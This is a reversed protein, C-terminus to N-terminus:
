IKIKELFHILLKKVKIIYDGCAEAKKCDMKRSHAAPNRYLESITWLDDVLSLIYKNIEQMRLDGKFDNDGFSFDLYDLMTRDIENRGKEKGVTLHVSGLTFKDTKSADEYAYETSNVRKLISRKVNQLSINNAELFENPTIGRSQLWAIYNSYLHVRLENELAKCMENISASFDYNGFIHPGKFYQSVYIDIGTAIFKKTDAQTKNWVDGFDEQL